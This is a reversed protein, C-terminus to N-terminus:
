VLDLYGISFHEQKHVLSLVSVDHKVGGSELRKGVGEIILTKELTKAWCVFFTKFM